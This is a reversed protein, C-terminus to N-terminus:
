FETPTCVVLGRVTSGSFFSDRIGAEGVGVGEGLCSLNWSWWLSVQEMDPPFTM